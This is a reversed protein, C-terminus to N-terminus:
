RRDENECSNWRNRHDCRSRNLPGIGSLEFVRFLITGFLKAAIVPTKPDIKKVLALIVNLREWSNYLAVSFLFYFLRIIYNKSTTKPRFDNKVRYATKIGWGTWIGGCGGERLNSRLRRLCEEKSRKLFTYWWDLCNGRGLEGTLM